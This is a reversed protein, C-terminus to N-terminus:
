PATRNALSVGAALVFWGVILLSGGIPTTPGLVARPGVGLALLYISGSFLLTGVLFLWGVASLAGSARGSHLSLLGVVMLAIAHVLQYRVGTEFSDLQRPELKLRERLYHAGFAGAIVGLGGLLAGVRVWFGGNM